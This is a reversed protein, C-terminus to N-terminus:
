RRSRRSTDRRRGPPARRGSPWRPRCGRAAPRRRPPSRRKGGRSTARGPRPRAPPRLAAPLPHAIVTATAGRRLPADARAASAAAAPRRGRPARPDPRPPAPSARAPPEERKGDRHAGRDDHQDVREGAPAPALRPIGPERGRGRRRRREAEEARHEEQRLPEEVGPGAGGSPRVGGHLREVEVRRRERQAGDHDERNPGPQAEQRPPARPHARRRHPQHEVPDRHGERPEVPEQREVRVEGRGVEGRLHRDRLDPAAEGECREEPEPRVVGARPRVPAPQQEGGHQAGEVEGPHLEQHAPRAVQRVLRRPIEARM